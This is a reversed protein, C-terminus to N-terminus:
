KSEKEKLKYKRVLEEFTKSAKEYSSFGKRTTEGECRVEIVYNPVKFIRYFEKDFYLTVEIEKGKYSGEAVRVLDKHKM